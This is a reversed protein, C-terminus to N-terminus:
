HGGILGMAEARHTRLHGRFLGRSDALLADREIASPPAPRKLWAHYGAQTVALVRCIVAIPFWAVLEAKMFAYKM